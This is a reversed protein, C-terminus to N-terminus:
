PFVRCYDYVKELEQSNYIAYGLEKTFLLADYIKNDNSIKSMTLLWRNQYLRHLALSRITREPKLNISADLINYCIALNNLKQLQDLDSWSKKIFVADAVATTSYLVLFLILLRASM